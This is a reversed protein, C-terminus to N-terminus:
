VSKNYYWRVNEPMNYDRLQRIWLQMISQQINLYGSSVKQLYMSCCGNGIYLKM